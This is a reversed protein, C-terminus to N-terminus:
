RKQLGACSPALATWGGPAHAVACRDVLAPRGLAALAAARTANTWPNAVEGARVPPRRAARAADTARARSVGDAVAEGDAAVFAALTDYAAPGRSAGGGRRDVLDEFCVVVHPLECLRAYDRAHWRATDRAMRVAFADFDAQLNKSVWDKERVRGVHREGRGYLRAVTKRQYEAWIADLPRRVVVLAAGFRPWPCPLSGNRFLRTFAFGKPHAKITTQNAACRAEGPLVAMLSKDHYVSGSQGGLAADLFLRTMTSGSGPVTWLVPPTAFRRRLPQAAACAVLAVAAACRAM